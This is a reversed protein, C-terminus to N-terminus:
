VLQESRVLGLGEASVSVKHMEPNQIVHGDGCAGWAARSGSLREQLVSRASLSCAFPLRVIADPPAGVSGTGKSSMM